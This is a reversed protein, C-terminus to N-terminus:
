KFRAALDTFARAAVYAVQGNGLAELRDVVNAVGDAV